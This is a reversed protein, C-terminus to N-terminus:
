GLNVKNPDTDALFGLKCAVIPDPAIEDLKSWVNTNCCSSASSSTQVSDNM